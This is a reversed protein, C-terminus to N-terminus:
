WKWRDSGLFNLQFFDRKNLHWIKPSSTLVDAILSYYETRLLSLKVIGIWICNDWFFFSKRLKKTCKQFRYSTKLARFFFVVRMAKTNGFNCVGFVHNSLHLFTKNWLISQSAIDYVQGLLTSIQMVTGKDCENTVSLLMTTSFTERISM